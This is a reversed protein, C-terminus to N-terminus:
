FVFFGGISNRSRTGCFSVFAPADAGNATGPDNCSNRFRSETGILFQNRTKAGAGIKLRFRCAHKGHLHQINGAYGLM